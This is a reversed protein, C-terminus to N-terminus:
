PPATSGTPVGSVAVIQLGGFMGVRVPAGAFESGAGSALADGERRESGTGVARCETGRRAIWAKPPQQTWTRRSGLM